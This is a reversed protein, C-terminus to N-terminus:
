IKSRSSNGGAASLKPFQCASRFDSFALTPKSKSTVPKFRHINTERKYM